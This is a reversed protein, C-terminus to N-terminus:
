ITPSLKTGHYETGLSDLFCHYDYVLSVRKDTNKKGTHLMKRDFKKWRHSDCFEVALLGGHNTTFDDARHSEISALALFSINAVM